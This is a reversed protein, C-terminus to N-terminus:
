TRRWWALKEAASKADYDARTLLWGRGALERWIEEPREFAGYWEVDLAGAPWAALGVALLARRGDTAAIPIWGVVPHIDAVAEARREFLSDFHREIHALRMADTISGPDIPAEAAAPLGADSLAPQERAPILVLRRPTGRAAEYLRDPRDLFWGALEVVGATMRRGGGLEAIVRDAAPQIEPPLAVPRPELGLAPFDIREGGRRFAHYELEDLSGVRYVRRLAAVALQAV